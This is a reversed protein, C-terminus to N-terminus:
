EFGWETGNMMAAFTISPGSKRVIMWYDKTTSLFWEKDAKDTIRYQGTFKETAFKDALEKDNFEFTVEYLPRNTNVGQQPSDFKLQISAINNAPNVKSFQIFTFASTANREMKTTDMIKQFDQIGIGLKLNGFGTPFYTEPKDIDIIQANTLTVLLAFLATFLNKM